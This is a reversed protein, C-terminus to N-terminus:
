CQGAAFCVYDFCAAVFTPCLSQLTPQLAANSGLLGASDNQRLTANRCLLTAALNHQWPHCDMSWVKVHSAKGHASMLTRQLAPRRALASNM